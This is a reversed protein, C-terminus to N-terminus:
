HTTEDLLNNKNFYSPNKGVKNENTTKFKEEGFLIYELYITHLKKLTM